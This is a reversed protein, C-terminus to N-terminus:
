VNSKVEMNKFKKGVNIITKEAESNKLFSGYLFFLAFVIVVTYVLGMTISNKVNGITNNVGEIAGNVGTIDKITDIVNDLTQEGLSNKIDNFKKTKDTNIGLLNIAEGWTTKYAYNVDTAYGGNKLALAFQNVDSAKTIGEYRKNSLVNVYDNVFTDLNEYQKGNIGYPSGPYAFIGSLNNNKFGTNEGYGTEHSWHAVVYAPNIKLLEGAKIAYPYVSNLFQKKQETTAM